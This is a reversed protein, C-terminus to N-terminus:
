IKKRYILHDKSAKISKLLIELGEKPEVNLADCYEVFELIDLSRDGNEIRVLVPHSSNVRNALERLSFDGENRKDRLWTRLKLSHENNKNYRM